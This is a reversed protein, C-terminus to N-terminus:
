EAILRRTLELASLPASGEAKNNITIFAQRQGSSVLRAIQNRVAPNPAALQDFPHFRRKAAEYREGAGLNWRVITLSQARGRSLELQSDLDPLRPHVSFCHHAKSTELVDFYEDCLLARDRIEVAKNVESPLSRLFRGLATFFRLRDNLVPLSQPSFQFLVVGLTAGLGRLTPEIIQNSAYDADLFHRRQTPGDLRTVANHAKVVFRFNSPLDLAYQTWTHESLPAYWSRDVSVSDLLPHAAYAPLGSRALTTTDYHQAYVIGDWGPFSWSSTGLRIENGLRTRFATALARLDSSAAQPEVAASAHDGSPTQNRSSPETAPTGFLDLQAV